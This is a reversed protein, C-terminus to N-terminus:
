NTEVNVHGRSMSVLFAMALDRTQMVEIDVFSRGITKKVGALLYFLYIEQTFIAKFCYGQVMAFEFRNM